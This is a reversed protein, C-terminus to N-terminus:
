RNYGSIARFPSHYCRSIAMGSPPESWKAGEASIVALSGFMTIGEAVAPRSELWKKAGIEGASLVPVFEM